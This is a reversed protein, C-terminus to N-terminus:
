VTAERSEWLSTQQNFVKKGNKTEGLGKEAGGQIGM